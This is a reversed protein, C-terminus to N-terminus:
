ERVYSFHNFHQNISIKLNCDSKKFAFIRSLPRVQM